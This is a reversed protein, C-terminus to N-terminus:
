RQSMYLPPTPKPNLVQPCAGRFCQDRLRERLEPDGAFAEVADHRVGIEGLDVLPQKLWM